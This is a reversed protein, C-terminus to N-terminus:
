DQLTIKMNLFYYDSKIGLIKSEIEIVDDKKYSLAKEKEIGKLVLEIYIIEPSNYDAMCKPKSLKEIDSFEKFEDENIQYVPDSASDDIKDKVHIASTTIFKIKGQYDYDVQSIGLKVTFKGTPSYCDDCGSLGLILHFALLFNTLPNDGMRFLYSNRPDKKLNSIIEKSKKKGKESMEKESEVDIVVARLIKIDKGKIKQNIDALKQNFQDKKMEQIASSDNSDYKLPHLDKVLNFITNSDKLWLNWMENCKSIKALKEEYEKKRNQKDKEKVIMEQKEREKEEALRKMERQAAKEKEIRAEDEKKKEREIQLAEKNQKLEDSKKKEIIYPMENEFSSVDTRNCYEEYERKFRNYQDETQISRPYILSDYNFKILGSKAKIYGISDGKEDIYFNGNSFSWKAYLNCFEEKSISNSMAVEQPSACNLVILISIAFFVSLKYM